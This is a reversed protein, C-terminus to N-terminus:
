GVRVMSRGDRQGGSVVLSAVYDAAATLGDVPVQKLCQLLRLPSTASDVAQAGGGAAGGVHEPSPATTCNLRSAVAWTYPLPDPLVATPGLASGSQLIARKFLNRGPLSISDYRCLATYVCFSVPFNLRFQSYRPFAHV